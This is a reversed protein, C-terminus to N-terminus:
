RKADIATRIASALEEYSRPNVLRRGDLFLSPTSDIGISVGARYATRIKERIVSSKADTKFREADLGLKTAYGAFIGSAGKDGEWVRQTDFILDHMEWFKGQMGAAESAAAAAEANQHTPLPFHRYVVALDDGFEESARKLYPYYFACAPCQFDSYETLVTRADRNGKVWDEAAMAPATAAGGGAPATRTAIKAMGFVSAGIAVAVITWLVIHRIPSGHSTNM